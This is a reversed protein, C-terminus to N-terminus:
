GQRLKLSVLDALRGVAEAESDFSQVMERGHTGIPGWQRLVLVVQRSIDREIM